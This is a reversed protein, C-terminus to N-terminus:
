FFNVYINVLIITIVLIVLGAILLKHTFNLNNEMELTNEM